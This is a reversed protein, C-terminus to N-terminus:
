SETRPNNSIYNKVQRQIHVLCRQHITEPYVEKLASAIQSSGDSVCARIDIYGMHDRLFRLDRVIYDKKEGDGISFWIIKEQIYEYYVLLVGDTYSTGNGDSKPLVYGDIM